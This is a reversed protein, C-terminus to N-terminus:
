DRKVTLKVREIRTESVSLITMSFPHVEIVENYRPIKPYHHFIFGALTEYADSSPIGIQYKGNIYDIEARGSFVFEDKSLQKEVTSDVDHEDEIEGFIEEIVDELTVIGSTVGFEDLVLAISKHQKTFHDLLENAPMTEAVISIPLLISRISDPNRFMEYSHTFGIIHDISKEYILIKSLETEIFARRLSEIPENVDLAIIENRPVMCERVKVKVFDLAKQFIQIENSGDASETKSAIERIYHDLDIKGFAPKDVFFEVKFITKLVFESFGIVLFVVPYLLWYVIIMPLAFFNLTANPHLRFVIKPIFEATVLIFATSIISQLLIILLPYQLYSPLIEALYPELLRAMVLGYVVLSINNGVLLAGIFRSPYKVFFSVIKASLFGQKYELEIKLKNASIFAIEMGSFFASCLLTILITVFYEMCIGSLSLKM